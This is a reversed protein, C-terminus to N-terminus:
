DLPSASSKLNLDLLRQLAEDDSIDPQWGYARAVARDVVPWAMHTGAAVPKTQKTVYYVPLILPM